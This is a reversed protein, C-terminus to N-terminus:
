VADLAAVLDGSLEAVVSSFEYSGAEGMVHGMEVFVSRAQALMDIAGAHDGCRQLLVAASCSVAAHLIPADGVEERLALCRAAADRVPTDGYGLFLSLNGYIEAVGLGAGFAHLGEYALRLLAEARIYDGARAAYLGEWTDLRATACPDDAARAL